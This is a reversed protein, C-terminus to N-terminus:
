KAEPGGDTLAYLAGRGNSGDEVIVGAKKMRNLESELSERKRDPDTAQVGSVIEGAGLPRKADVMVKTIVQRHSPPRRAGPESPVWKGDRREVTKRAKMVHRLTGDASATAQGIATAVAATTAGEPHELVFAEAKDAFTGSTEVTLAASASTAPGPAQTHAELEKQFRPILEFMVERREDAPLAM